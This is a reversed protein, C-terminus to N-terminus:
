LWGWENLQAQNKEAFSLGVDTRYFMKPIMVKEILTYANTRAEAITSGRGSVHMVFGNEGSICM